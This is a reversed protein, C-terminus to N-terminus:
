GFLDALYGDVSATGAVVAPEDDRVDVAPALTDLHRKVSEPELFRSVVAYMHQDPRQRRYYRQPYTLRLQDRARTLAVYLLRREEELEDDDGTAMDSPICGDTAHLVYV